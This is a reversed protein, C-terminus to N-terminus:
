RDREGDQDHLREDGEGGRVALARLVFARLPREKGKVPLDGLDEVVARNGLVSRTREGLVVEGARAQQQLRSGTNVMDGTPTFSRAGRAQVLGVHAEGSNIGVRFRPWDPRRGSAAACAEQLRLGARAARAEHGESRFIAFLEDGVTQVIEGQEEQIVPAAVSFYADLM